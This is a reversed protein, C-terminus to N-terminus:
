PSNKQSDQQQATTLAQCPKLSSTASKPSGQHHQPSYLWVGQCNTALSYQHPIHQGAGQLAAWALTSSTCKM